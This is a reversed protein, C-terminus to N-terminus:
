VTRASGKSLPEPANSSSAATGRHEGELRDSFHCSAHHLGGPQPTLLPKETTCVAPRGLNEYLWCRTHFSCGPPPAIPSPIDGSLIIKDPHDIRLPLAASVLARTYPHRSAAFLSESPGAEVVEGLYMVTVTHALFRVTSLDHSIMLYAVGGDEQVDKLLNMVQSRVSVDLASVPEDLVILEPSPALARAIAIRQRQGGSFHRPLRDQAAADLGVSELLHAVRGQVEKTSVRRVARLPEAIAAGVRMRPDLSSWPNQFVAQVRRRHRSLARGRMRHVNEGDFTVTGADPTELRLAMRAVTTKGAGSEGVVAMTRGAELGFSVEHAARITARRGGVTTGIVFARSVDTLQLLPRVPEPTTRPGTM